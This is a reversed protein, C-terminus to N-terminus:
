FTQKFLLTVGCYPKVLSTLLTDRENVPSKEGWHTHIRPPLLTTAESLWAYVRYEQGCGGHLSSSKRGLFLHINVSFVLFRIKFPHWITCLHQTTGDSYSIAWKERM